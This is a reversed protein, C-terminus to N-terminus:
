PTDETPKPKVAEIAQQTEPPLDGRQPKFIGRLFGPTLASLPNVTIQSKSLPGRVTYNLALVGEGKGGTFLDGLLPVDGLISNATYAPVLVGDIDLGGEAINIEGNSTMGLGPGSARAERISLNGENWAFPVNFTTFSLGTGGLVDALGQLSALSLIQTLIPAEILRFDKVDVTGRLPGKVGIPPLDAVIKMDGGTINDLDFFAFAVESADPINLQAVRGGETWNPTVTASFTGDTTEGTIAAREVGKGPNVFNLTADRLVYAENLALRGLMGTVELPLTFESGQGRFASAVFPSIDLYDGTVEVALADGTQTPKAQIRGDMFGEINAHAVDLNVLRYDPALNLEGRASFGPASVNVGEFSLAGRVDRKLTGKLTGPLGVEKQWYNGVSLMAPTLDATVSAQSVDVGQGTALISLDIEGGLYARGGFGFGDLDDRGLRGKLTYLTPTAGADFTEQFNLHTAWPGLQVPGKVVLRTKDVSLDVEGNSLIHKGIGFPASVDSLQGTASYTILSRDFRELLPRSINANITGVGSFEEPNVGFQRAFEFPKQDILGLMNDVGGSASLNIDLRGGKPFLQPMRVTVGAVQLGNVTGGASTIEAQNGRLWGQGRAGLYPSMTSIYRIDAQSIDFAMEVNEEGLPVGQFHTAELNLRAQINGLQAREVARVIWRRAGDAFSVPWLSLLEDKSIPGSINVDARLNEFPTEAGRQGSMNAGVSFSGFDFLNNASKFRQTDPDYRATMTVYPLRFPTAFTPTLDLRVDSLAVDIPTDFSLTLPTDFQSVTATGAATFHQTDIQIDSLALAGQIPDYTADFALAGIDESVSGFIVQGAGISAKLNAQRLGDRQNAQADMALRIPADLQSLMAFRGREPAIAKPNVASIEASVNVSSLARDTNLYVGLPAPDSQGSVVNAMLAAVVENGRMSYSLAVDSLVLELGDVADRIQATGNTVEIVSLSQPLIFKAGGGSQTGRWVPGLNGVQDLTGLGAIVSGNERRFLSVIGGDIRVERAEVRGSLAARVGLHASIRSINEISEGAKNEISIDNAAFEITNDMGHWQLTLKHFAADHGNFVESFWIEANRGLFSVDVEGRALIYNLGSFWFFTLGLTVSILEGSLRFLRYIAGCLCAKWRKPIDQRGLFVAQYFHKLKTLYQLPSFDSMADGNVSEQRATDITNDSSKNPSDDIM